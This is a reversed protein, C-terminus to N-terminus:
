KIYLKIEWHYCLPAPIHKFIDRKYLAHKLATIAVEKDAKLNEDILHFDEPIICMMKLVYKKDNKKTIDFKM